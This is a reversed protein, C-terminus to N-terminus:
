TARNMELFTDKYIESLAEDNLDEFRIFTSKSAARRNNFHNRWCFCLWYKATEFFHKIYDRIGAKFHEQCAHASEISDFCVFAHGSPIFPEQTESVLQEEYSEM